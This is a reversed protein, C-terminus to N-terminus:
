RDEVAEFSVTGRGTQPDATSSISGPVIAMRCSPGALKVAAGAAAGPWFHPRVEFTPTVGSGNATVAEMVRHLGSGTIELLDGISVRYGAPLGALTCSKNNAGITGTTVSGVGLADYAPKPYAIPYCRSLPYGIFTQLGGELAELRGRCRDLNNPSLSRTVWAGNWLPWGLDKVYTRGGATRSQEQRFMPEFKTTWGPFDALLNVPYVITM